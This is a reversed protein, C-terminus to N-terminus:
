EWPALSSESYDGSHCNFYPLLVLGAGRVLCLGLPETIQMALRKLSVELPWKEERWIEQREKNGSFNWCGTQNAVPKQFKERM